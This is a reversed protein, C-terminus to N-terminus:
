RLQEPAPLTIPPKFSFYPEFASPAQYFVASQLEFKLPANWVPAENRALDVQWYHSRLACYRWIVKEKNKFAEIVVLLEPDTVVALSFIAGDIVNQQPAQYRLLPQPLLELKTAEGEPNTVKGSFQRAISRMQTLRRPLSDAPEGADDIVKWETGASKPAWVPINGIKASFPKDSVSICEHKCFVMGGYEYTFISTIVAPLEGDFWVYMAGQEQQRVTNQWHMLPKPKLEFPKTGDKSVIEYSSAEHQFHRHLEEPTYTAATQACAMHCHFMAIFALLCQNKSM